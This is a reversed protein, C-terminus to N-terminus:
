YEAALMITIVRETLNPDAPDPSHLCLAKDYYDIKFFIAEGVVHVQGFDREGYPDNAETFEDFASVARTIKEVAAQGLAAVGTTVMTRGGVGRVRLGDNLRRIADTRDSM